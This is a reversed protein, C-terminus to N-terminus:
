NDHGRKEGKGQEDGRNKGDGRHKFKVERPYRDRPLERWPGRRSQSYSWSNNQYYYFFGGHQYYPEEELVVIQPLAPVVVVGFGGRGPGVMCGALLLTSILGVLLVKKM